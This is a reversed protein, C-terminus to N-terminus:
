AFCRRRIGTLNRVPRAEDEGGRNTPFPKLKWGYRQLQKTPCPKREAREGEELKLTGRLHNDHPCASSKM